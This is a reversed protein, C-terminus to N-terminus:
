PRTILFTKGLATKNYVKRHTQGMTVITCPLPGGACFPGVIDHRITAITYFTRQNAYSKVKATFAAALALILASAGLVVQSKKM